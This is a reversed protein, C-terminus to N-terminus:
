IAIIGVFGGGGLVNKLHKQSLNKVLFFFGGFNALVVSVAVVNKNLPSLFFFLGSM